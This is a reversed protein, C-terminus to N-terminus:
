ASLVKIASIPTVNDENYLPSTNAKRLVKGKVIFPLVVSLDGLSIKESIKFPAGPQADRGFIRSKVEGLSGLASHDDQKYANHM